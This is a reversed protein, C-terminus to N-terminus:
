EGLGQAKERRERRQQANGYIFIGVLSALTSGGFLGGVVASGVIALAVATVFGALAVTLAMWQGRHSRTEDGTIVMEELKRRHAGNRM